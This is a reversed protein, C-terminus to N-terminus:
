GRALRRHHARRGTRLMLLAAGLALLIVTTPEPIPALAHVPGLYYTDVGYYDQLRWRGGAYVVSYYRLLDPPDPDLASDDSDTMWVGCYTDPNASTPDTSAGWMTVVHPLVGAATSYLTTSVGWGDRLAGDIASMSQSQAGTLHYYDDFSLDPYFGGGPVRVFYPEWEQRDDFWWQWANNPSAGTPAWHDIFYQFMLDADTMGEVRGWGTWALVNCASAAWCMYDDEIRDPSKEADYVTGGWHDTLMYDVRAAPAQCAVLTLTVVFGAILKCM